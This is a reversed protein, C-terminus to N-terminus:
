GRTGTFEFGPELGGYVLEIIESATVLEFGQEILAPITRRMAYITSAHIDHLVVIAGDRAHYMIYEHIHYEDRYRGDQPDISWNLISYGLEYAVDFVRRNALGHPARFMPTPQVGTVYYIIASTDLIQAAIAEANIQTLNVHSWSHGVIEHGSEFARLVTEAGREVIDGLVCFTVRGGYEDLIDLLYGTLWHPGDDFTLAIMPARYEGTTGIPIGSPIQFDSEGLDDFPTYEPPEESYEEAEETYCDLCTDPVYEAIEPPEPVPLITQVAYEAVYDDNGNTLHQALVVTGGVFIVAMFLVAVFKVRKRFIKKDARKSRAM